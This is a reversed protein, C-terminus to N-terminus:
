QGFGKTKDKAVIYDLYDSIQYRSFWYHQADEWHEFSKKKGTKLVVEYTHRDYPANSTCTFTDSM